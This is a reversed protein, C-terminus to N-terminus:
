DDLIEPTPLPVIFKGQYGAGRLVPVISAALHWPFLLAHPPQDAILQKEDVIPLGTGPMMRGIKDSGPVECVCSLYEELGAYHILPTARTAAGIGYVPGADRAEHLLVRLQDRVAGARTALGRQQPRATVRFSGGHSAVPIAQSILYGHMALLYGLSSVSYYRLHEHYITDIQLGNVVSAWDHNETIFEGVDPDLLSSVGSLFDHPDPVHALVNSATIVRAPGVYRALNRGLSATWFAQETTIGRARCKAAQGTPEVALLTANPAQRALEALFTGDNAGIDVVLDGPALWPALDLALDRFHRRLAATNGTSYPHDEPFLERQAVIHSLQVLGCRDCELLALPYTHGDDREAMPQDGLDLIYKLDRNRCIGCRSVAGQPLWAMESM